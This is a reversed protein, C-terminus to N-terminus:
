KTILSMQCELREGEGITKIEDAEWRGAGTIEVSKIKIDGHMVTLAMRMGSSEPNLEAVGWAYGNSWFLRSPKEVARFQLAGALANYGFGTWALYCSWSAM